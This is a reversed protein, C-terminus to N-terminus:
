RAVGRGGDRKTASRQGRRGVTGGGEVTATPLVLLLLVDRLLLSELLLLGGRRLRGRQHGRHLRARCGVLVDHELCRAGHAEVGGRRPPPASVDDPRELRLRSCIDMHRHHPERSRAGVACPRPRLKSNFPVRRRGPFVIRYVYGSPNSTPLTHTNAWKEPASTSQVTPLAFRYLKYPHGVRRLRIGYLIGPGVRASCM